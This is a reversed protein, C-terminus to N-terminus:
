LGTLRLHLLAIYERSRSVRPENPDDRWRVPFEGDDICVIIAEWWGALNDQEDFGAALVLSSPKLQRWLYATITASATTLAALIRSSASTVCSGFRDEDGIFAGTATERDGRRRASSRSPSHWMATSRPRPNSTHSNGVARSLAVQLDLDAAVAEPRGADRSVKGVSRTQAAM